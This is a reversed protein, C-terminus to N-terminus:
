RKAGDGQDQGQSRNEGAVDWRAAGGLDVGDDGQAVFLRLPDRSEGGRKLGFRFCNREDQVEGLSATVNRDFCLPVFRCGRGQM